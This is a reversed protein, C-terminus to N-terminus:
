THIETEVKGCLGSANIKKKKEFLILKVTTEEATDLSDNKIIKNWKSVFIHESPFIFIFSHSHM